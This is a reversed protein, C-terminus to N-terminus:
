RFVLEFSIYLVDRLPALDVLSLYGGTCGVHQSNPGSPPEKQLTPNRELIHGQLEEMARCYDKYHDEVEARNDIAEM